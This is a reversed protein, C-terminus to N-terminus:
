DERDRPLAPWRMADGFPGAAAWEGDGYRDCEDPHDYKLKFIPGSHSGAYYGPLFDGPEWDAM